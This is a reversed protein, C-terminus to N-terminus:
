TGSYKMFPEIAFVYECLGGTKQNIKWGLRMRFCRKGYPKILYYEWYKGMSIKYSGGKTHDGIDPDGKLSYPEYPAALTISLLNNVPNRFALWCFANWYYPIPGKGHKVNGFITTAGSWPTLLLIAVAPIGIPICIIFILIYTLYKM